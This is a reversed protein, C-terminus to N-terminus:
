LLLAEHLLIQSSDTRCQPRRATCNKSKTFQIQKLITCIFLFLTQTSPSTGSTILPIMDLCPERFTHETQNIKNPVCIQLDKNYSDILIWVIIQLQRVLYHCANAHLLAPKPTIFCTKTPVAIQLLRYGDVFFRCIIQLGQGLCHCEDARLLAQGPPQLYRCILRYGDCFIQLCNTAKFLVIVHMQTCCLRDQHTCLDVFRIQLRGCFDVFLKCVKALVIVCM